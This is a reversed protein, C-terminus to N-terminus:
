GTIAGLDCDAYHSFGSNRCQCTVGDVDVPGHAPIITGDWAYCNHGNPCEGCRCNAYDDPTGDVCPKHVCTFKWGYHWCSHSTTTTPPVPTTTFVTTPITTPVTTPSECSWPRYNDATPCLCFGCVCNAYDHPVSGHGQCDLDPCTFKLYAWCPRTTTWPTTTQPTTTSIFPVPTTPITTPITTPSECSWPRYNDATPCLCFGCVCNAYDHPVSGHGQCDLDPCTFKLYAWCPLHPTTTTWPMATVTTRASPYVRGDSFLRGTLSRGEAESTLSRGEAGSTLLFVMALLFFM